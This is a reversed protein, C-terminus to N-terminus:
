RIRKYCFPCTNVDSRVQRRCSPCTKMGGGGGGYGSSGYRPAMSPRSAGYSTPRYPTSMRSQAGYSPAGGYRSPSPGGYRGAPALGPPPGQYSPAGYQPGGGYAPAPGYPGAPGPGMPEPGYQPEGRSPGRKGGGRRSMFLIVPIFIAILVAAIIGLMLPSFGNNTPASTEDSPTDTVDPEPTTDGTDAPTPTTDGTPPVPTDGSPTAKPLVTFIDSVEGASGTLKLTYQGPLIDPVNFTITLVGTEASPKGSNLTTQGLMVTVTDYGLGDAQVSVHTGPVGGPPSFHLAAHAQPVYSILVALALITLAISVTIKKFNTSKL